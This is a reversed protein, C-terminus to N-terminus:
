ETGIEPRMSLVPVTATKIVKEAVSGFLIKDIGKRGHTGM